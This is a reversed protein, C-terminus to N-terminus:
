VEGREQEQKVPRWNTFSSADVLNIGAREADSWERRLPLDYYLNEAEERSFQVCSNANFSRYYTEFDEQNTEPRPAKKIAPLSPETVLDVIEAIQEEAEDSAIPATAKPWYAKLTWAIGLVCGALILWYSLGSWGGIADWARHLGHFINYLFEGVNLLAGIFDAM